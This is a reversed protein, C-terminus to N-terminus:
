LGVQQAAVEVAAGGAIAAVIGAVLKGALGEVVAVAGQGPAGVPILGAIVVAGVAPLMWILQYGATKCEAITALTPSVMSRWTFRLPAVAAVKLKLWVLLAVSDPSRTTTSTELLPPEDQVCTPGVSTPFVM